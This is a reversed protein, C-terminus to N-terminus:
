NFRMWDEKIQGILIRKNPWLGIVTLYLWQALARATIVLSLLDKAYFSERGFAHGVSHRDQTNGIGGSELTKEKTFEENGIYLHNHVISPYGGTNQM